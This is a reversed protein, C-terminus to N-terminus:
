INKGFIIQDNTEKLIKWNKNNKLQYYLQNKKYIHYYDFDYINQIEDITYHGKYIDVYESIIDKEKNIKKDFIESRTDIYCKYGLWEDYSGLNYDTFIKSEKSINLNDLLDYEYRNTNLSFTCVLISIFLIVLISYKSLQIKPMNKYNYSLIIGSFLIFYQLNRMHMLTFILFGYFLLLYRIPIIQPKKIIRIIHLVFITIVILFIYTYEISLPKLEMISLESSNSFYANWNYIFTNYTYPNILATITSIISILILDKLRKRNFSGSIKFTNSSLKLNQFFFPLLVLYFIFYITSHINIILISIIPLSFLYKIDDKKIYNELAYFELLILINSALQPRKQIFLLSYTGIIFLPIWYRNNGVCKYVKYIVFATIGVFLYMVVNLGIMGFYKYITYCFICTLWKEFTYNTFNHITFPEINTFGNEVLYKGNNLMFYIDPNDEYKLFLYLVILIILSSYIIKNININKNDLM